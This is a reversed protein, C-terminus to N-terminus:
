SGSVLARKADSKCGQGMDPVLPLHLKYILILADYQVAIAPVQRRYYAESLRGKHVRSWTNM